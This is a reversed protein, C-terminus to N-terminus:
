ETGDLKNTSTPIIPMVEGVSVCWERLQEVARLIDKALADFSADYAEPRIRLVVDVPLATPLIQKRVLERLRRKVRNRAVASRKFRPVILGIRV